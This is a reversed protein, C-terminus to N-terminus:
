RGILGRSKAASKYNLLEEWLFLPGSVSQEQMCVLMFIPIRIKFIVIVCLQIRMKWVLIIFTPM